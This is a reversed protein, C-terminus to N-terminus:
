KQFNIVNNKSRRVQCDGYQVPTDIIKSFNLWMTIRMALSRADNKIILSM